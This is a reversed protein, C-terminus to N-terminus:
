GQMGGERARISTPAYPTAGRARPPAPTGLAMREAAQVGPPTRPQTPPAELKGLQHEKFGMLARTSALDTRPPLGASLRLGVLGTVAVAAVAATSLVRLAYDRSARRRPPVRIPFAPESLQAARLLAAVEAMGDAAARCDACRELHEALLASELESLEGDIRLSAQQCARVCPEAPISRTRM